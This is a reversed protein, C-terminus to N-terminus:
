TTVASSRLSVYQVGFRQREDVTVDLVPEGMIIGCSTGLMTLLVRGCGGRGEETDKAELGVVRVPWWRWWDEVEM